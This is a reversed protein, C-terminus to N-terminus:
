KNIVNYGPYKMWAMYLKLILVSFVAMSNQSNKIHNKSEIM